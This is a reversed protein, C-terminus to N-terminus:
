CFARWSCAQSDHPGEGAVLVPSERISALRTQSVRLGRLLIYTRMTGEKESKVAQLVKGGSENWEHRLDPRDVRALQDVHVEFRPRSQHRSSPTSQHRTLSCQYRPCQRTACMQLRASEM